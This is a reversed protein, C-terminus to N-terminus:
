KKSILSAIRELEEESRFPIVVEGRGDKKPKIKVKTLYIDSFKKEWQTYEVQQSRTNVKSEQTDTRQIVDSKDQKVLEEVERVSLDEKIIIDLIALQHDKDDITILSRAHGMSLKNDRLALQIEEPLKLLRLYNTVTTRNKGIRAALEEQKLDCEEILRKYSIGIEIANLNERHINEILSMELMGQDDAIRVYAPISKLGARISARIRREGSILQYKGRGIKRVTVPQIIGHVKISEVLEELDADNFAERPQFPNAEIENIPIEAINNLPVRNKGTIDTNSDALLANLGKGLAQRKANM